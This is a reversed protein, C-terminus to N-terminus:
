GSGGDELLEGFHSICLSLLFAGTMHEGPMETFKSNNRQGCAHSEELFIIDCVDLSHASVLFSQGVPTGLASSSPDVTGGLVRHANNHVSWNLALNRGLFSMHITLMNLVRLASIAEQFTHPSLDPFFSALSFPAQNLRLVVQQAWLPVRRSFWHFPAQAAPAWNGM